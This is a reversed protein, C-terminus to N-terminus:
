GFRTKRRVGSQKNEATTIAQKADGLTVVAEVNRIRFGQEKTRETPDSPCFAKIWPSAPIEDPCAHRYYEYVYGIVRMGMYPINM